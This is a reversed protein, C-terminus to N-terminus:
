SESQAHNTKPEWLGTTRALRNLDPTIGAEQLLQVLIAIVLRQFEAQPMPTNGQTPTSM